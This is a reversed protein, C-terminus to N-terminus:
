IDDLDALEDLYGSSLIPFRCWTRPDVNFDDLHFAPATRERKWQNRCWLTFFKKIHIKLLESEELHQKNLINHIEVPSLKDRIALKEIEVIVPYPMLDDEDTQHKELPRLEATPNLSNVYKLSRYDLNEEAWKLWKLIFHKDIAAIPAISGSTDGDMTAYGV